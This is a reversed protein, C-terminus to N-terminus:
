LNWGIITIFIYIDLLTGVVRNQILMLLIFYLYFSYLSMYTFLNPAPFDFPWIM